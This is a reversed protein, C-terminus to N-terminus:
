LPRRARFVFDYSAPYFDSAETKLSYAGAEVAAFHFKGLADSSSQQAFSGEARQLIVTAGAVAKGTADRLVGDVATQASAAGCLIATLCFLRLCLLRLSFNRM